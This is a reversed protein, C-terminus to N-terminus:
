IKEHEIGERGRPHLPTPDPQVMQALHRLSIPNDQLHGPEPNLLSRGASCIVRTVTCKKNEKCSISGGSLYECASNLQCLHNVYIFRQVRLPHGQISKARDM